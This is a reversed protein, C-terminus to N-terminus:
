VQSSVPADGGEGKQLRRIVMETWKLRAQTIMVGYEL